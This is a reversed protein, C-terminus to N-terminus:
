SAWAAPVTPPESITALQHNRERERDQTLVTSLYFSSRKKKRINLRQSAPQKVPSQKTNDDKELENFGGM